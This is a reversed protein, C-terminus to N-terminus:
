HKHSELQRKFFYSAMLESCVWPIDHPPLFPGGFENQTPKSICSVVNRAKYTGFKSKFTDIFRLESAYWFGEGPGTSNPGNCHIVQDNTCVSEGLQVSLLFNNFSFHFPIIEALCGRCVLFPANLAAHGTADIRIRFLFM